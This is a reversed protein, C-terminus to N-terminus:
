LLIPTGCATDYFVIGFEKYLAKKYYDPKYITINNNINNTVICVSNTNNCVNSCFLIDNDVVFICKKLKQVYQKLVKSVKIRTKYDLYKTPNDLMYISSNKGICLVIEILQKEQLTLENRTKDYLKQINLPKLVLKNFAISSIKTNLYKRLINIVTGLYWPCKLIQNKISVDSKIKEKIWNIFFTKGSNKPGIIAVVSDMIPVFGQNININNIKHQKYMFLSNCTAMCDIMKMRPVIFKPKNLSDSRALNLPRTNLIMTEKKFNQDLIVINDCVYNMFTLDNDAIFIYNNNHIKKIENAVLLRQYMDLYEFPHDFIYVNSMSKCTIWVHILQLESISLSSMDKDILDNIYDPCKLITHKSINKQKLYGAVLIDKKKNIIRQEKTVITMENFYLKTMYDNDLTDIDTFCSEIKPIVKGSLINLLLTKGSKSTGIIGNIRDNYIVPFGYLSINQGQFLLNHRQETDQFLNKYHCQKSSRVCVDCIINNYHDSECINDISKYRKIRSAM